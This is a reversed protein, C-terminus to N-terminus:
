KNEELLIKFDNLDLLLLDQKCIKYFEKSFGNKSIIIYNNPELKLSKAKLELLNLINRCIKKNKFK